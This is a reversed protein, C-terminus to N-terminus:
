HPQLWLGDNGLQSSCGQLFPPRTVSGQQDYDVRRQDCPDTWPTASKDPRDSDNLLMRAYSPSLYLGGGKQFCATLKLGAM